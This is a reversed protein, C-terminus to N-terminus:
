GRRDVRDALARLLPSANPLNAIHRLVPAWAGLDDTGEEEGEFLVAAEDPLLDRGPVLVEDADDVRSPPPPEYVNQVLPEVQEDSQPEPQTQAIFNEQEVKAGYKQGKPEPQM